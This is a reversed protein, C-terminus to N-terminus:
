VHCSIYELGVSYSVGGSWACRRTTSRMNGAEDGQAWACVLEEEAGLEGPKGSSPSLRLYQKGLGVCRM